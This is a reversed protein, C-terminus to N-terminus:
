RTRTAPGRPSMERPEPSFTALRDYRVLSKALAAVPEDDVTVWAHGELRGDVRDVGVVLTPRVGALSLFRYTALSRELCDGGGLVLGLRSVAYEVVDREHEPAELRPRRPEVMRVLTPLAVVHKLVSLAAKWALM